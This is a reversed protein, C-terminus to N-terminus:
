ADKRRRSAFGAGILLGSGLLVLTAPAPVPTVSEVLVVLDNFDKDSNVYQLDEWAMVWESSLWKRNGRGLFDAYRTDDGQYAVMQEDGNPNESAKSFFDSAGSM